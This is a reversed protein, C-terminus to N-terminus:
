NSKKEQETERIRGSGKCKNCKQVSPTGSGPENGSGGCRDCTVRPVDKKIMYWVKKGASVVAGVGSIVKLIKGLNGFM